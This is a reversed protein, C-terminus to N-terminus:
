KDFLPKIVQAIEQALESADGSPLQLETLAETLRAEGSQFVAASDDESSILQKAQQIEDWVPEIQKDFTQGGARIRAILDSVYTRHKAGLSKLDAFGSVYDKLLALALAGLIAEGILRKKDDEFVSYAHIGVRQQIGYTVEEFAEVDSDHM